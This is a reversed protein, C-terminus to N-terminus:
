YTQAKLIYNKEEQSTHHNKKGENIINSHWFSNTTLLPNFKLNYM